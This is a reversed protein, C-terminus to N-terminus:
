FLHELHIIFLFRYSRLYSKKIVYSIKSNNNQLLRIDGNANRIYILFM